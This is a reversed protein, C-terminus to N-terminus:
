MFSTGRMNDYNPQYGGHAVGALQYAPNDEINFPTSGNFTQQRSTQVVPNRPLLPASSTLVASTNPQWSGNSELISVTPIDYIVDQTNYSQRKYNKRIVVAIICCILIVVIILLIFGITGGVVPEVIDIPKPTNSTLFCYIIM